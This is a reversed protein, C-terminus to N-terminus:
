DTPLPLVMLVSTCTSLCQQRKKTKLLLLLQVWVIFDALSTMFFMESHFLVQQVDRTTDPERMYRRVQRILAALVLLPPRAADSTNRAIM